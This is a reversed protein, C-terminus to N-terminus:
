YMPRYIFISGAPTTRELMNTSSGGVFILMRGNCVLGSGCLDVSIKGASKWTNDVTNLLYVNYDIGSKDAGAALYIKRNCGTVSFYSPQAPPTVGNSINRTSTNFVQFGGADAFLYIYNDIAVSNRVKKMPRAEGTFNCSAVQWKGNADNFTEITGKEDGYVAYLTNGYAELAFEARKHQMSSKNEHWRRNNLDFEHVSNTAIGSANYGGAIIIKGKFYTAGFFHRVFASRTVVKFTGQAPFFEYIIISSDTPLEQSVKFKSELFRSSGQTLIYYTGPATIVRPLFFPAVQQVQQAQVTIFYVMPMFLTLVSIGLRKCVRCVM